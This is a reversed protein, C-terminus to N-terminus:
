DQINMPFVSASASASAGISQGGSTFLRNMPFSGSGPFSQPCSSFPCCLILHNSLMVSEISMLKLLSWSITFSLSAQHAATWLTVFLQVCSLQQVSNVRIPKGPPETTFFVEALASSVPEIEPDLLNGPTPFPLGCWYEQRPFGM